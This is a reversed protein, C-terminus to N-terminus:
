PILQASTAEKHSSLELSFQREVAEVHCMTACPLFFSTKSESLYM